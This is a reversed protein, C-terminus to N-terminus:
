KGSHILSISSIFQNLGYNSNLFYFFVLLLLLLCIWTGKKPNLSKNRPSGNVFGSKQESSLYALQPTEKVTATFLFSLSSFVNIKQKYRSRVGPLVLFCVGDATWGDNLRRRKGRGKLHAGRRVQTRGRVETGVRHELLAFEMSNNLPLSSM